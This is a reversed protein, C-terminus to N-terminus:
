GSKSYSNVLEEPESEVRSWYILAEFFSVRDLYFEPARIMEKMVDHVRNLGIASDIENKM